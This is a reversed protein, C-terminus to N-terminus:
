TESLIIANYFCSTHKIELMVFVKSFFKGIKLFLEKKLPNESLSINDINCQTFADTIELFFVRINEAGSVRRLYHSQHCRASQMLINM